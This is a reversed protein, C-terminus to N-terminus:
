DCGGDVSHAASGNVVSPGFDGKTFTAESEREEPIEETPSTGCLDDSDDEEPPSAAFGSPLENLQLVIKSLDDERASTTTTEPDSEADATSATTPELTRADDKTTDDGGCAAAVLTLSVAVGLRAFYGV